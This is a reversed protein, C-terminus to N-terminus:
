GMGACVSTITPAAQRIITPTTAAPKQNRIPGDPSDVSLEAGSTTPDAFGAGEGAGAPVGAVDTAPVAGAPPTPACGSGVRAGPVVDVAVEVVGPAFAATVGVGTPPTAAKTKSTFIASALGSAAVGAASVM